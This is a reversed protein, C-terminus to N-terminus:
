SPVAHEVIYDFVLAQLVRMKIYPLGYTAEFPAYDETGEAKAFYASIDDPTAKIGADEAVAQMILNFRVTDANVEANREILEEETGVEEYEMLVDEYSMGTVEVGVHYYEIMIMEQYRLMAEPLATIEVDTDFYGSIYELLSQLRLDEEEMGLIDGPVPMANYDFLTVYDLARVGEWFGDGDLGDSCFRYDPEERAPACACLLAAVLLVAIPFALHRRM